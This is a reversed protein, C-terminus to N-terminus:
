IIRPVQCQRPCIEVAENYENRKPQWKGDYQGIMGRALYIFFWEVRGCPNSDDFRAKMIDDIADCITM